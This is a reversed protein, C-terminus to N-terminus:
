PLAYYIYHATKTRAAEDHDNAWCSLGEFAANIIHMEVRLAYRGITQM